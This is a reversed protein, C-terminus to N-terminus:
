VPLLDPEKKRIYIYKQNGKEKIEPNGDYPLLNIRSQLEARKTLLGKIVNINTEM